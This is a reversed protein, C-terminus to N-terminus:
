TPLETSDELLVGLESMAEAVKQIAGSKVIVSTPGLAEGLYKAAKSKRLQELIEPRSVRLVTQAEARAETGNTEWRKLAKVLSPPVGADAHKALLALLQEPNLGQGAARKLSRPTLRYHYGDEREDEWECFRAIQYRVSRPVLRPAAITGRAAVRLKGNEPGSLRSGSESAGAGKGAIRFAAMEKGEGASALDLLGLRFMIGVIMFRILAGDVQDWKDFGRLYSGQSDKIFWSDYDGAPRQFDPYASKIAEVFAALSWWAGRPIARLLGLLFSRTALPDNRWEGECILGPVLRLENFQTSGRWADALSRLAERRPTELFTKAPGARLLNGKILGATELLDRLAADHAPPQGIRLAALYTTAEDLIRDTAPVAQRREAPTARRGLPQTSGRRSTGADAQLLPLWDDALYAFEQPGKDTDFFAQALLGRYFLIESSSAPKLHPKERDRRGAGMERVEGFQRVFAALPMRGGARVLAKLASIADAPLAGLLEQVLRPDLIAAALERAANEAENAKLELGWLGAIIRLHGLDYGRLSHYLDPM